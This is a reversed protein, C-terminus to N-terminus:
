DCKCYGIDKQWWESRDANHVELDYNKVEEEFELLEQGSVLGTAIARVYGKCKKCTSYRVTKMCKLGYPFYPALYEIKFKTEM